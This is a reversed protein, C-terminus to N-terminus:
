LGVRTIASDLFREARREVEVDSGSDLRDPILPRAPLGRRTGHQHFRAVDSTIRITLTDFARDVQPREAEGRLGGDAILLSRGPFRAAKRAAYASSLPAWRAGLAGGESSFQEGIWSEYLEELEPWLSRLDDLEDGLRRLGANLDDLGTTDLEISM